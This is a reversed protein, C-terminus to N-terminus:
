KVRLMVGPVSAFRLSRTPETLAARWNVSGRLPDTSLIPIYWISADEPFPQLATRVIEKADDVNTLTIVLTSDAPPMYRRGSPYFGQDPRDLSSDVLQFYLNQGDGSYIELQTAIEFSNVGGVDNLFRVSLLM